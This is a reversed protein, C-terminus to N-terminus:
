WATSPAIKKLVGAPEVGEAAICLALDGADLALTSGTMLIAMDSVCFLAVRAVDDPVGVRGLPERLAIQELVDGLGAAKFADAGGGHGPDRDGTPALALVRIDHPGLEVALSKTLGRVGHKSAVYHAM